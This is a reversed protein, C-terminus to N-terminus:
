FIYHVIGDENYWEIDLSEKIYLPICTIVQSLTCGLDYYDVGTETTYKQM